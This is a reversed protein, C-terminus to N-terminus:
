EEGYLLEFTEYHDKTYYILGDNSYIIRKSGRSKKKLTGIDCEYYKRGKKEPLVGEYNQYRDGGICMGPVTQNLAGSEWGKKRAEAKTMFNDPLHGYQYLYLAVDDRSDYTGHEDLLDSAPEETPPPTPDPIVTVVPPATEPIVSATPVASPQPDPEGSPIFRSASLGLASGILLILLYRIIKKLQDSM